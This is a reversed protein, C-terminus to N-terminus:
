VGELNDARFLCIAVCDRDGYGLEPMKRWCATLCRRPGARVDDDRTLWRLTADARDKKIRV